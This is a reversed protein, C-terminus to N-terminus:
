CCHDVIIEKIDRLQKQTLGTMFNKQRVHHLKNIKLFMEVTNFGPYERTPSHAINMNMNVIYACRVNHIYERHSLKFLMSIFSKLM